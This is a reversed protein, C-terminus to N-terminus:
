SKRILDHKELSRRITLPSVKAEEAMESLSKGEVVWRKVLWTKSDYLKHSTM